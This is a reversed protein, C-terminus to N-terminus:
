PRLIRKKISDLYSKSVPIYVEKLKEMILFTKRERKILMKVHLLNIVFSRHCREVPFDKFTEIITKLRTRVLRKKVDNGELYYILVYQNSSEAFLFDNLSLELELNENEDYIFLLENKHSNSSKYSTQFKHIENEL